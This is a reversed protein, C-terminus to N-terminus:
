RGEDIEARVEAKFEEDLEDANEHTADKLMETLQEAIYEAAADDLGSQWIAKQKARAQEEARNHGIRIWDRVLEKSPIELKGTHAPAKAERRWERAVFSPGIRDPAFSTAVLEWGDGEPSVPNDVIFLDGGHACLYAENAEDERRERMRVSGVITRYEYKKDNM